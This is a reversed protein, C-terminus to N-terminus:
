EPIVECLQAVTEDWPAGVDSGQRLFTRINAILRLAEDVKPNSGAVYAGINVLDEAEKYTQLIDRLRGAKHNLQPDVISKMLRSLSELVDIAPFHNASALQRSLVIHGDLISRVTDAVPDNMDDGEVLITYIGTIAGKGSRGSRELLKPLKAFVSPTYGKTTPPEGVALGIERLAMAYRTVSDMMLVVKKGQNRFYEAISTAVDAARARLLAAQDSTAVVVVSRSLGESGLENEIFERVERGREGVLAIVNIDAESKTAIMGMLTSKGVGSGAFIGIRQGEGVTCTADIARVGTPLIASIPPRSLAEPPAQTAPYYQEAIIPGKGDIPNGLADLVRGCLAPTLAVLHTDGTPFVEAGPAIREMEGLAMLLVKDQKFGVVECPVSTGGRNVVYCLEGLHVSPGSSEILMGIVHTVRGSVPIGSWSRAITIENTFDLTM